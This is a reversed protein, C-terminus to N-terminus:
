FSLTGNTQLVYTFSFYGANKYKDQTNISSRFIPDRDLLNKYYSWIKLKAYKGTATKIVFFTNQNPILLVQGTTDASLFSFNYWTKTGTYPIAYNPPAADTKFISDSLATLANFPDNVGPTHVTVVGGIGPGSSGGNILIVPQYINTGNTGFAIDWVTSNKNSLPVIQNNDLSYYIFRGATIPKGKTDLGTVTDAVINYATDRVLSVVTTNSTNCSSFLILGIIAVSILISSTVIKM